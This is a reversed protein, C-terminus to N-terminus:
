PKGTKQEKMAFETAAITRKLNEVRDILAQGKTESIKELVPKLIACDPGEAVPGAASLIALVAASKLGADDLYPLLLRISEVHGWQGLGSVVVKKDEVSRAAKDARQFWAVVAADPAQRGNGAATTLQIAATLAGGRRSPDPSTEVLGLLDNVPAPTPWRGLNDIALMALWSNPDRLSPAIVPLAKDYGLLALTKIWSGKDLDETTQKLEALVMGGAQEVDSTRMCAFYLASEAAARLAGDKCTKTLAILTPVENLGVMSRMARYAALSVKPDPNAAQRLLEATASAPSRVDLLDILTVRFGADATAALTKLIMADVEAGEIRALSASAIASEAPYRSDGLAKLLLGADTRDGIKGLTRLAAQRIEPTESAAKARVAQISRPDHCDAMAEILQGQLEPNAAELEANLAQALKDSPIERITLLAVNRIERDESKLLKILLDAGNSKRAIIAGRTAGVRYFVPVNATRVADYLTVATEAKGDALQLQAAILCAAAADPRFAEPGASLARQLIKITEANSIRGLALLAEKAVGSSPNGALKSLAGVSKVDRLVGLSNVVGALLNGKVRTLASRLAEAASPDPIGELGSRAYASLAQDSLLAALAPVAEKTGFEGLQQCARAKDHQSADARQLVAILKKVEAPRAAPRAVPSLSALSLAIGSVVALSRSAFKMWTTKM